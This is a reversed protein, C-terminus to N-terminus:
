VRDVVFISFDTVERAKAVSWKDPASRAFIAEVKAVDIVGLVKDVM